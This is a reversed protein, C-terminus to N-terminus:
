VRGLQSYSPGFDISTNAHRYMVEVATIPTQIEFVERYANPYRKRVDQEDRCEVFEVRVEDGNPYKAHVLRGSPPCDLDVQNGHVLWFDQLILRRESSNAFPDLNALLHGENDRNLWIAPRGRFRLIEYTQFYHNGGVYVLLENRLWEFKEGVTGPSAAADVKFQRLQEPTFAGADAKPHHRSCLAIIGEPDHHERVSWPPDFHHWELYPNGCGPVPCGFRVERRLQRRVEIPPRRNM